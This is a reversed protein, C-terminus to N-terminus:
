FRHTKLIPYRAEDLELEMRLLAAAYTKGQADLKLSKTGGGGLAEHLVFNLAGLNPLEFREVKGLVMEGFYSKVRESTLEEKLIEYFEARRAIVGVNVSDGKDGSRGHALAILQLKM